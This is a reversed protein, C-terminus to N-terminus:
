QKAITGEIFAVDDFGYIERMANKMLCLLAFAETPKLSRRLIEEVETVVPQLKQRMKDDYAMSTIRRNESLAKKIKDKDSDLM